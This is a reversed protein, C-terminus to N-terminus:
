SARYRAPGSWNPAPACGSSYLWMGLLPPCTWWVRRATRHVPGVSCGPQGCGDYGRGRRALQAARHDRGRAPPRRQGSRELVANVTGLLESVSAPKAIFDTAGADLAARRDVPQGRATLVILPCLGDGPEQRLRRCVEHGTIGPMMIDVIALDPPDAVALAVGEEGDASRAM